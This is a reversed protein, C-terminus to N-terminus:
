ATALGERAACRIEDLDTLRDTAEEIRQCLAEEVEEASAGPYIVRVEVVDVSFDPFTERRLTPLTALGAAILLLMLLNAATPHGAFYRIM